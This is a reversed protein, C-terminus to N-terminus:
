PPYNWLYENDDVRSSVGRNIMEDIISSARVSVVYVGVDAFRELSPWRDSRDTHFRRRDGYSFDRSEAGSTENSMRLQVGLFSPSFSTSSVSPHYVENVEVSVEILSYEDITIEYHMTACYEGGVIHNVAYPRDTDQVRYVCGRRELIGSQLRWERNPEPQQMAAGAAAPRVAAEAAPRAESGAASVPVAFVVLLALVVAFAVTLRNILTMTQRRTTTDNGTESSGTDFADM